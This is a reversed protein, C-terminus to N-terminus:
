GQQRVPQRQDQPPQGQQQGQAGAMQTSVIKGHMQLHQQFVQQVQPPLEDYEATKMFEAHARFHAQHNDYFNPALPSQQNHPNPPQGQRMRTNEREAHEKDIQVREYIQRVDSRQLDESLRAWDPQGTSPDNYYWPAIQLLNMTQELAGARSQPVGSRQRVRVDAVGSLDSANFDQLRWKKNQGLIKLKRPEDYFQQALNLIQRGCEERARHYSRYLPGHQTDDQEMLFSLAVGSKVGQPAQARSVEHAAFLDDLLEKLELKREYVDSPLGPMQMIEPAVARSNITIKEGAENNWQSDKMGSGVFDLIKPFTLVRINEEIKSAIVNIEKQIPIAQEVMSTPWFRGPVSFEEIEVFPLRGHKYPMPGNKLVKNGAVVILRGEPYEDCPKEWYELVLASKEQTENQTNHAGTIVTSLQESMDRFVDGTGKLNEEPKVRKGYQREIHRVSRLVVHLVGTVHRDQIRDGRGIPYVEFPSCVDVVIEGLHFRDVIPLGDDGIEPVEVRETVPNRTEPDIQPLGIEDEVPMEVMKTRVERVLDGGEPDWMIKYFGKGCTIAWKLAREDLTPFDQAYQHHQLLASGAEASHLDDRDDSMPIAELHVTDSTAKAVVKRVRTIIHNEVRKVRHEPVDQIKVLQGLKNLTTWQHGLLFALNYYWQHAYPRKRRKEEEYLEKLFSVLAEEEKTSRVGELINAPSSNDVPRSPAM